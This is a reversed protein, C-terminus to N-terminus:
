YFYTWNNGDSVLILTKRFGTGQMEYFNPTATNSDKAFLSGGGAVVNLYANNNATVNRIIYIRGPNDIASPLMFNNAGSSGQPTISIYVGDNIPTGNGTSGLLPGSGAINSNFIGIEKVSLNGNIDLTSKPDTTNIGVQSFSASFAFLIILLLEKKM